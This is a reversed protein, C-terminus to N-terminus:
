EKKEEKGIEGAHKRLFDGLEKLKEPNETLDVNLGGFPNEVGTPVMVRETDVDSRTITFPLLYDKAGRALRAVTQTLPYKDGHEAQLSELGLRLKTFAIFQGKTLPTEEGLLGGYGTSEEMGHRVVEDGISPEEKPPKSGGNARMYFLKHKKRANIRKDTARERKDYLASMKAEEVQSFTAPVVVTARKEKRKFRDIVGM